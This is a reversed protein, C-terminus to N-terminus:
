EGENVVPIVYGCPLGQTVIAAEETRCPFLYIGGRREVEVPVGGRIQSLRHVIRNFTDRDSCDIIIEGRNM